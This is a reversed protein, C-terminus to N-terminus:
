ELGKILEGETMAKEVPRIRLLEEFLKEAEAKALVTYGDDGQRELLKM